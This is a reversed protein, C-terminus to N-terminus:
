IGKTWHWHGKILIRMNTTFNGLENGPNTIILSQLQLKKSM